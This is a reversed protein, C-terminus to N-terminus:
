SFSEFDLLGQKWVSGFAFGGLSHAAVIRHCPILLPLPNAGLGQGLAQPATGLQKALQGYTRVEGFPIALLGARMTLQFPTAPVALPPLVTPSGNFYAELWRSVPNDYDVPHNDGDGPRVSRCQQGNWAYSLPGLPSDFRYLM